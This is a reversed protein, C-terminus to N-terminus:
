HTSSNLHITQVATTAHSTIKTIKIQFLLTYKCNKKKWKSDLEWLHVKEKTRSYEQPIPSLTAEGQLAKLGLGLPCGPLSDTFQTKPSPQGSSEKIHNNMRESNDQRTITTICLTTQSNWSRTLYYINKTAPKSLFPHTDTWSNTLLKTM